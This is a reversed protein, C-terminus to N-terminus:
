LKYKEFVKDTDEIILSSSIGSNRFSDNDKEVEVEFKKNGTSLNSAHQAFAVSTIGFTGEKDVLNGVGAKVCSMTFTDGKDIDNLKNVNRGKQVRFGKEKM